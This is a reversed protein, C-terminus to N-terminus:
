INAWRGHEIPVYHAPDRIISWSTLPWRVNNKYLLTQVLYEPNYKIGQHYLHHFHDIAHTYITMVHPLGIAFQDNFGTQYGEIDVEYGYRQNSPTWIFTPRQLLVQYALLLDIPESLGLDPRSRIVLDYKATCRRVSDCYKLINYQQWVNYPTSNYSEYDYPLPGFYNEDLVEAHKITYNPPLNNKLRKIIQDGDELNCWNSSIKPDVGEARRYFVIYVDIDSNQLNALQSDFDISFRPNGSLLLATKM